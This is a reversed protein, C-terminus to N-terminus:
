IYISIIQTSQDRWQLVSADILIRNFIRARTYTELSSQSCHGSLESSHGALESLLTRLTRFPTDQLSQSCHGSLELLLTTLVRLATSQSSQSCYRSVGEEAKRLLLQGLNSLTGDPDEEGRLLSKSTDM